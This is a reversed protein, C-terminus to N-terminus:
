THPLSNDLVAEYKNKYNSLIQMISITIGCKKVTQLFM